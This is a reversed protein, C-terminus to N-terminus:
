EEAQGRDVRWIFGESSFHILGGYAWVQGDRLQTFGFVGPWHKGPFHPKYIELGPVSHVQGAKLDVYSCWGGWEGRDAGLWLRHPRDVLLATAHRDLRDMKETDLRYTQGSARDHVVSSPVEYRRRSPEVARTQQIVAVLGTKAAPGAGETV